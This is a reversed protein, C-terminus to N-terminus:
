VLTQKTECETREMWMNDAVRFAVMCMSRFKDIEELSISSVIACVGFDWEGNKNKGVSLYEQFM